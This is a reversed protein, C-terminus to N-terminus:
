RPLDPHWVVRDIGLDELGEPLADNRLFQTNGGQYLPVKTQPTELVFVDGCPVACRGARGPKVFPCNRSSTVMAYPYHLTGQLGPLPAIGQLLNDLEIRDIGMEALLARAEASYWSGAQFYALQENTLSIGCIRPGRKQGSLVRGMVMPVQADLQQLLEVTGLDSVLVEDGEGLRPLIEALSKELLPLFPESVVPTALTFLWGAERAMELAAIIPGADPFTWPCFESGFYLRDYRGSLSVPLSNLFLAREM